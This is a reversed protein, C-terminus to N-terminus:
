KEGALSRRNRHTTLSPRDPGKWEVSWRGGFRGSLVDAFTRAFQSRAVRENRPAVKAIAQSRASPPLRKLPIRVQEEAARM